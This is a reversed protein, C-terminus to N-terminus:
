DVRGGVPVATPDDTVVVVVVAAAAGVVVVGAVVPVWWRQYWRPGAGRRTLEARVRVEGEPPVAVQARFPVFGGKSVRIDYRAPAPVRIAQVPTLGHREGGIEVAAGTLNADIHIVGYRLFDSGPMVRELYRILAADSPAANVALAEALRGTVQRSKVDIRQLTLIVDGLESVGVLLVEQAGIRSGLRAVCAAEGGCAVVDADLNAGYRKRADVADILRLSTRGGLLRAIRDDIAPLASSGGRFELVAVRRRPDPDARAPGLGVALVAVAAAQAVLRRM